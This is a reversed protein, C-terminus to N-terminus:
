PLCLRQYLGIQECVLSQAPTGAFHAKYWDVVWDLAQELPLAPRWGLGARAKGNDLALEAAEHLTGRTGPQWGAGAGWRRALCDAVWSVPKVDAPEPGFNWPGAAGPAGAHLHEAHSLYGRLPELVHQWPRTSGPHRVLLPQSAAFARMADPVLREAAWDGGGIVNGARASAVAAPKGDPFFSSRWAHTVLEAAAKSASYPDDGGLEDSEGYAKPGGRNRYCKDTTVIVAARVSDCSRLAELCNATGVVNTTFTEIPRRYSERVLSQAALHFVVEPRSARLAREITAPDRVDGHQSAMAEGLRSAEFLSPSTPPELALGSVRAGLLNLWWCLWSGKFGTHGTVLVPRGRWFQPTVELSELRSRRQEV